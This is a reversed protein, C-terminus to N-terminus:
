GPRFAAVRNQLSGIGEIRVEIVDGPQMPGVGSPTGTAIVDGPLLTMVQSVFSVLVSVPFILNATNNKQKVAGNLYSEVSLHSPDLETEIWPGFPAFTDFGKARTWQGDLRQLDRATVDNLCTYGLIYDSAENEIINHAKKKIVVGLEAEYDVQISSPPYVIDDGPNIVATPPKLFILPQAPLEHKFEAAHSKYNVGIAVIKSPVSPALLRAETLKVPTGLPEILSFPNGRIPQINDDKLVGFQTRGRYAFRVIRM